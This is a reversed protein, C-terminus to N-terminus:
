GDERTVAFVAPAMRRVIYFLLYVLDGLTVSDGKGLGMSKVCTSM